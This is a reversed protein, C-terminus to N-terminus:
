YENRAAIFKKGRMKREEEQFSLYKLIKIKM